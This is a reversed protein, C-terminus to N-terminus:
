RIKARGVLPVDLEKHHRQTRIQNRSKIVKERQLGDYERLTYCRGAYDLVELDDSQRLVQKVHQLLRIGGM